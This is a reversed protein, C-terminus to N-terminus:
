YDFLQLLNLRAKRYILHVRRTLSQDSNGKLLSIFVLLRILFENMQLSRIVFEGPYEKVLNM